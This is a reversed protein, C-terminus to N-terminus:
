RRANLGILASVIVGLIAVIFLVEMLSYASTVGSTLSTKASSFSTGSVNTSNSTTAMVSLGVYAIVATIVIGLAAGIMGNMSQGARVMGDAHPNVSNRRAAILEGVDGGTAGVAAAAALWGKRLAPNITADAIRDARAGISPASPAAEAVPRTATASM